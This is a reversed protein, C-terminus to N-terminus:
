YSSHPSSHKQYTSRDRQHEDIGPQNAQQSSNPASQFPKFVRPFYSRTRSRHVPIRTYPSRDVDLRNAGDMEQAKEGGAFDVKHGEM